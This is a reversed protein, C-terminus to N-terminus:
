RRGDHRYSDRIADLWPGPGVYRAKVPLENLLEDLSGTNSEAALFFRELAENWNQREEATEQAPARELIAMRLEALTM